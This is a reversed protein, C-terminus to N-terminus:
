RRLFGRGLLLFCAAGYVGAGVLIEIALAPIDGVAVLWRRVVMLAISMLVTSLAILGIKRFLCGLGLSGNMRIAATVLCVCGLGACVVTSGALGVHRWEEPLYVVSLVNLIANVVVMYVSIRLPTKVDGQAQFWPVLSKQFGFFGLGLAYVALARSVRVTAVSDFARGQYVVATIEHSLLFMGAAAPLMVLMLHMVSSLLAKKAGEFDKKAFLGSFTPLLVTGFAVGVVGLPLDMLREAYGVVGAAWPAACQALFQDLMYNIQVAGAGFAAIATNKWVKRVGNAGWGTFLPMPCVGVKAMCSFMFILQLFGGFLIAVAILLVRQFPAVDPLVLLALLAAIWVLNLLTPMFSAAKFKGLANLVGMGFAAGCIALMYPLLVIVLAVTTRMRYAGAGASFIGARVSWCGIGALAIALLSVLMLLLMTMVARALRVAKELGEQEVEQKFVPVFAATLAGEGFLKRAMNPLAFALTFASQEVGAGILRSQLMERVLGLVRSFATFGGVTLVSRILKQPFM